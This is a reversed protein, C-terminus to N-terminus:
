DHILCRATDFVLEQGSKACTVDEVGAGFDVPWLRPFIVQRAQGCYAAWWSLSSSSMVLLEARCLTWFDQLLSGSQCRWQPCLHAALQTDDTVVQVADDAVGLAAVRARLVEASPITAAYAGAHLYDGGRLHVVCPLVEADCPRVLRLVDAPAAAYRLHQYYGPRLRQWGPQPHTSFGHLARTHMADYPSCRTVDAAVHGGGIVLAASLQWLQNGLGGRLQVVAGAMAKNKGKSGSRNRHGHTLM